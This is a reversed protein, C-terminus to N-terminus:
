KSHGTHETNKGLKNIARENTERLKPGPPLTLESYDPRKCKEKHCPGGSCWFWRHAKQEQINQRIKVTFSWAHENQFIQFFYIFSSITVSGRHFKLSSFQKQSWGLNQFRLRQLSSHPIQTQLPRVPSQNPVVAKYKKSSPRQMVFATFSKM